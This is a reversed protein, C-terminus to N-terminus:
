KLVNLKKGANVSVTGPSSATISKCTADVDVVVANSIIVNTTNIPVTNNSWTKVDSWNGDKVSYNKTPDVVYLSGSVDRYSGNNAKVNVTYRCVSDTLPSIFSFTVQKSEGALITGVNVSDAGTFVYGAAIDKIIKFSVNNQAQTGYNKFTYTFSGASGPIRNYSLVYGDQVLYAPAAIGNNNIDDVLYTIGNVASDNLLVINDAFANLEPVDATKDPNFRYSFNQFYFANRVNYQPTVFSDIVKGLKASFGAVKLSATDASAWLANLTKTMEVIYLSDENMLEKFKNSYAVSDFAPTNYITKLDTIKQNYINKRALLDVPSQQSAPSFIWNVSRNNTFGAQPLIKDSLISIKLGGNIGQIMAATLAAPKAFKAVQAVTKFVLSVGQGGPIIASIASVADAVTKAYGAIKAITKYFDVKDKYLELTDNSLKVLSPTTLSYLKNYTESYDFPSIGNKSSAAANLVFKVHQNLCYYYKYYWASIVSAAAKKFADKGADALSKNRGEKRMTLAFDAADALLTYFKDIFVKADPDTVYSAAKNKLAELYGSQILKVNAEIFKDFTEDALKLGTNGKAAAGFSVTGLLSEIADFANEVASNIMENSSGGLNYVTALATYYDALNEVRKKHLDKIGNPDLFKQYADDYNSVVFGDLCVIKLSIAFSLKLTFCRRSVNFKFAKIERILSDPILIAGMMTHNRIDPYKYTIERNDKKYKIEVTYIKGDEAQKLEFVGDANVESSDKVIGNEFLTVKVGTTVPTKQLQDFLKLSDVSSGPSNCFVDYVIGKIFPAVYPTRSVGVPSTIWLYSRATDLEIDTISNSPLGNATTLMKFSNMSDLSGTGNYVFIGFTTGIWIDGFVNAIANFNVAAGAPLPSNASTLLKWTGNPKYVGIGGSNLGVFTNGTTTDTFIARAFSSAAANTFPLPSNSATIPTLLAGSSSIRTIYPALCGSNCNSGRGFWLEDGRKGASHYIIDGADPVAKTFSSSSPPPPNVTSISYVGGQNTTTGTLSQALAVYTVGTSSMALSNAYRSGLGGAIGSGYQTVTEAKTNILYAGGTIAQVSTKGISTIWVNSDGPMNSSVGHRFTVDPYTGIKKWDTENFRYLGGLDAGVWITGRKDVTVSRFANVTFTANSDKNWNQFNYTQAHVVESNFAVFLLLLILNKSLLPLLKRM